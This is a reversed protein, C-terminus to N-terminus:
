MGVFISDAGKDSRWYSGSANQMVGTVPISLAFAEEELIIRRACQYHTTYYASNLDSITVGRSSSAHIVQDNGIYIGVHSAFGGYDGTYSFIVLDGCQLDEKAVIISDELQMWVTRDISVEMKNFVYQTYGSCDFGWRSTGGSVYPVGIYEKAVKLLDHRLELAKQMNYYPLYKTEASGKVCNVYYEGNENVSVQSKAIYGTMDYCDVKYFYETTELVTLKTGNKFCGIETSNYYPSRHVKSVRYSNETEVETPISDTNLLEEAPKAMVPQAFVSLAMVCILLYAVTRFLHKRKM